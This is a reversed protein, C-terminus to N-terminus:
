VHARGIQVADPQCHLDIMADPYLHKIYGCLSTIMLSDGFGRERYIKLIRGNLDQGAYPRLYSNFSSASGLWDEKGEAILGAKLREYYSHSVVYRGRSEMHWGLCEVPHSFSCAIM